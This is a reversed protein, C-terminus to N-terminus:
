RRSAASRAKPPTPTTGATKSTRTTTQSPAGRQTAGTVLAAQERERKARIGARTARSIRERYKECAIRWLFDAAAKASPWVEGDAARTSVGLEDLQRLVDAAVVASRSLRDMSAVVVVGFAGAAAAKTLATLSPPCSDGARHTGVDTFEAAISMGARSAFARCQELQLTIQPEAERGSTATRVYIACKAGSIPPAPKRRGAKTPDNKTKNFEMDSKEKSSKAQAADKKSM